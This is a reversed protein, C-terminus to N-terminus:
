CGGSHHQNNLLAEYGEVLAQRLEMQEQRLQDREKRITRCQWHLFATSVVCAATIAGFLFLLM